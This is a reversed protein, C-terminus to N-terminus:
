LLTNLNLLCVWHGVFLQVKKPLLKWDGKAVPLNGGLKQCKIEHIEQIETSEENLIQLPRGTGTSEGADSLDYQNMIAQKQFLNNEKKRTKKNKSYIPLQINSSGLM